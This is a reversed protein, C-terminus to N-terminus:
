NKEPPSQSLMPTGWGAWDWANTELPATTFTITIQQGEYTDLAIQTDHWRRDQPINKADVVQYFVTEEKQGDNIKVTFLVGDGYEPLWVEPHIAPAFELIAGPPVKVNYTVSAPPHMWLVPRAEGGLGFWRIDVNSAGEVAAQESALALLLDYAVVQGDTSPSPIHDAEVQTKVPNSFSKLQCIMGTAVVYTALVLLLASAKELTRAPRRRKPKDLQAIFFSFLGIINVAMLTILFPKKMLDPKYQSMRNLLIDYPSWWKQFALKWIDKTATLSSPRYCLCFVLDSELLQGNVALTGETYTNNPFVDVSVRQNSKNGSGFLKMTYNAGHNGIPPEFQILYPAPVQRAQIIAKYFSESSAPKILITAEDGASQATLWLRVGALGNVPSYFTQIVENSGFIDPLPIAQEPSSEPGLPLYWSPALWMLAIPSVLYFLATALLLPWRYRHALRFVSGSM